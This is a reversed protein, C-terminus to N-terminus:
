SYKRIYRLRLEQHNIKKRRFNDINKIFYSSCFYAPREWGRLFYMRRGLIGLFLPGSLRSDPLRIRTGIAEGAKIENEGRKRAVRLM